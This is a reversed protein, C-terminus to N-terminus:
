RRKKIVRHVYSRSVGFRESIVGTPLERAASQIAEAREPDKRSRPPPIYVREAPYAHRVQRSLEDTFEDPVSYGAQQACDCVFRMLERLTM